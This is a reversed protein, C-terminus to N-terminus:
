LREKCTLFSLSGQEQLWVAALLGFQWRVVARESASVWTTAVVRYQYTGVAGPLSWLSNVWGWGVGKPGWMTGDQGWRDASTPEPGLDCWGWLSRSPLESLTPVFAAKKAGEKSVKVGRWLLLGESQSSGHCSAASRQGIIDAWFQLAETDM